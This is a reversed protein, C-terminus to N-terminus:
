GRARPSTVEPEFACAMRADRSPDAPCCTRVQVRGRWAGAVLVVVPAVVLAALLYQMDGLTAM